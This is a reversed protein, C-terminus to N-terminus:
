KCLIFSNVKMNAMESSSGLPIEISSKLQHIKTNCRWRTTTSGFINRKFCFGLGKNKCCVTHHLFDNTSTHKCGCLCVRVGPFQFDSLLTKPKSVYTFFHRLIIKEHLNKYPLVLWAACRSVFAHYQQLHLTNVIISHNWYSLVM